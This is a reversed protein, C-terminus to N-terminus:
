GSPHIHPPVREADPFSRVEFHEGLLNEFRTVYVLPGAWQDKKVSVV